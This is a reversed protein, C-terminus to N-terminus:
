GQQVNEFVKAIIYFQVAINKMVTETGGTAGTNGTHNNIIVTEYTSDQNMYLHAGNFHGVTVSERSTGDGKTTNPVVHKHPQSTHGHSNNHIHSKIADAEYSGLSRSNGDSLHRMTCGNNQGFDPLTYSDDTIGLKTFLEPYDAKNITQGNLLLYELNGDNFNYNGKYKNNTNVYIEGIRTALISTKIEKLIQAFTTKFNYNSESYQGLFLDEDKINEALELDKITPENNSDDINNQTSTDM